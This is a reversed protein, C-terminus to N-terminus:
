PARPMALASPSLPPSTSPYRSLMRGHGCLPCRSPDKGFLRLCAAARDVKERPQPQPPAVEGGLILTRCTALNAERVRNSLLGYHRIRVFRPPLIHRVFRRAFEPAPLPLLETRNRHARNRWRFTVVKGDYDLIRSNSIAIKRTYRSVYRIVQQPGALPLKAYIVWRQSAASQLLHRGLPPAIGFAGQDHAAELKSLFKGRFTKRLKGYPLFFGSPCSIWHTRDDSLGGGPVLCHIHLHTQLQQNWTHLVATFGIRAGLNRHAVELLTEATADFLLDLALTPARLFFPHLSHSVTFVTHFYPV